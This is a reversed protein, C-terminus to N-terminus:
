YIIQIILWFVYLSGALYILVIGIKQKIALQLQLVAAIPLVLIYLDIGAGVVSHPVSFHYIKHQFPTQWHTLFTEGARPTMFVFQAITSGIYFMATAIGGVYILYRLTIKPRFLQYYM